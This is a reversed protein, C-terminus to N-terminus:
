SPFRRVSTRPIMKGPSYNRTSEYRPISVRLMYEIDVDDYHRNSRARLRGSYEWMDVGKDEGLKDVKLIPFVLEIAEKNPAFGNEHVLIM